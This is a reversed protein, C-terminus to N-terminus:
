QMQQQGSSQSMQQQHNGLHNLIKHYHREHMECIEKMAQSVEPIQCQSEYFHAKKMAMLNWSMMDTIYLLDKSTIVNPAQPMQNQQTQNMNQQQQQQQM